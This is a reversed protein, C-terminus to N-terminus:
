LGTRPDPTWSRTWPHQIRPEIKGTHWHLIGKRGKTQRSGSKKM